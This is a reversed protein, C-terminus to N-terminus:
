YYYLKGNILKENLSHGYRFRETMSWYFEHLKRNHRVLFRKWWPLRWKSRFYERHEPGYCRMLIHFKIYNQTISGFHHILSAGTIGMKFGAQKARWYFDTDESGGISFNEDFHGIKEFVRRRVMFCSGQAIGIRSVLAMRQSFTRAYDELDYNYEGERSAPSVIDLCEKEAFELLGKLWGSSVIVDNNLIAVWQFSAAKVGQNWAVACGMNEPNAIVRIGDCATLYDATGDTSGNDVIIIEKVCPHINGRLKELCMKTYELQNFVPIVISVGNTKELNVSIM